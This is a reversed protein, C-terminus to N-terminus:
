LYVTWPLCCFVKSIRESMASIFGTSLLTVRLFDTPHFLSMLLIVVRGVLVRGVFVRRM